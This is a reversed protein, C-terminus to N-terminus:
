LPDFGMPHALRDVKHLIATAFDQAEIVTFAQEIGRIGVVIEPARVDVSWKNEEDGAVAMLAAEIQAAARERAAGTPPRSVWGAPAFTEAYARIAVWLAQHQPDGAKVEIAARRLSGAPRRTRGGSAHRGPRHESM